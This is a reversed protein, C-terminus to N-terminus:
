PGDMPPALDRFQRQLEALEIQLEAFRREFDATPEPRSPTGGPVAERLFTVLKRADEDHVKGRFAPMNKGRGDLIAPLIQADSHSEHWARKTFDPV